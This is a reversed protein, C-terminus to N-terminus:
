NTSNNDWHEPTNPAALHSHHNLFDNRAIDNVERQFRDLWEGIDRENRNDQFVANGNDHYTGLYQTERIPNTEEMQDLLFSMALDASEFGGITLGKNKPAM